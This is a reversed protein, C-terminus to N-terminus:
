LRSTKMAIAREIESADLPKSFWYGQGFKCGLSRLQAVQEPTEIGEAVVDLGISHALTVIARVIEFNEADVTMRNIFTRDIKLTDIPFRPLYSLSSYGTGFDDISLQISKERIRILMQLVTEVDDLLMSETLELKLHSGDLES